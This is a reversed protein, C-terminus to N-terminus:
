IKIDAEEAQQLCGRVPVSYRHEFVVHRNLYSTDLATGHMKFFFALM